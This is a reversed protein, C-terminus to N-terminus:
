KLCVTCNKFDRSQCCYVLWLLFFKCIMPPSFFPNGAIVDCLKLIGDAFFLKLAVPSSQSSSEYTGKVRGNNCGTWLSKSHDVNSIQSVEFLLCGLYVSFPHLFTHVCNGRCFLQLALASAGCSTDCRCASHWKHANKTNWRFSLICLKVTAGCDTTKTGATVEAVASWRTTRVPSQRVVFWLSGRQQLWSRTVNEMWTLSSTWM